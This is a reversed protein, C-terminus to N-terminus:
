AWMGRPGIREAMVGPIPAVFSGRLSVMEGFADEPFDALVGLIEALGDRHDAALDPRRALCREILQTAAKWNRASPLGARCRLQGYDLAAAVTERALGGALLRAYARRMLPLALDFRGQRAQLHVDAWLRRTTWDGWDRQGKIRRDFAALLASARADHEPDGGAICIPIVAGTDVFYGRPSTLSTLELTAGADDLARGRNGLLHHTIGRVFHIRGRADAGLESAAELARDLAALSDDLRREEMLLDGLRQFFDSRCRPCCALARERVEALTKRAWYYDRRATYAHALVGYSRHRLHPDGCAEAVEVARRGIAIVEGAQVFVLQDGRDLFGACFKPDEVWRRDLALRPNKMARTLRKRRRIEERDTTM